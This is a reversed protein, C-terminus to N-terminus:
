DDSDVEVKRFIYVANINDFCPSAAHFIFGCCHFVDFYHEFRRYFQYTSDFSPPKRMWTSLIIWKQSYRCLNELIKRYESEKEIHFLLAICIVVEASLGEIYDAADCCIFRWQPRSLRNSQIIFKSIDIGIYSNCNRGKWFSLDGCGVDIIDNVPVHNNIVSWFWDRYQGVSGIGSNYGSRYRNNWYKQELNGM